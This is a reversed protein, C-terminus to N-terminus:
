PGTRKRLMWWSGASRAGRCSGPSSPCSSGMGGAPSAPLDGRRPVHHVPVGGHVHRWVLLGLVGLAVLTTFWMRMRHFPLKAMRPSRQAPPGPKPQSALRGPSQGEAERGSGLRSARTASPRGPWHWSVRPTGQNSVRWGYSTTSSSTGQSNSYFFITEENQFSKIVNPFNEPQKPPKGPHM